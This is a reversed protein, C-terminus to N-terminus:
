KLHSQGSERTDVVILDLIERGTNEVRSIAGAPVSAAEGAGLARSSDLM